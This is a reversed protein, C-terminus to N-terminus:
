GKRSVEAETATRSSLTTSKLLRKGKYSGYETRVRGIHMLFGDSMPARLLKFVPKESPVLM